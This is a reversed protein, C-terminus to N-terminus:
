EDDFWDPHLDMFVERVLPHKWYESDSETDWDREQLALIVAKILAKKDDVNMPKDLIAPVIADFVDVGSGWGM